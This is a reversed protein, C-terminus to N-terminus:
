MEMVLRELVESNGELFRMLMSRFPVGADRM